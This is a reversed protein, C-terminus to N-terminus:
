GTIEGDTQSPPQHNSRTEKPSPAIYNHTYLRELKVRDGNIYKLGLRLCDVARDISDYSVWGFIEGSEGILCTQGFM